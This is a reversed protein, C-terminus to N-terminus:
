SQPSASEREMQNLYVEYTSQNKLLQWYQFCQKALLDVSGSEYREKHFQVAKLDQKVEEFSAKRSRLDAM